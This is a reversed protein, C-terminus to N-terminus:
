WIEKLWSYLSYVIILIIFKVFITCYRPFENLLLTSYDSTISDYIKAEKNEENTNTTQFIDELTKWFEQNDFYSLTKMLDTGITKFDDISMHLDIDEPEGEERERGFFSTEQTFSYMIGLEKFCVIRGTKEKSKELKFSCQKFKFIKNISQFISPFIRLMFNDSKSENQYEWGYMFANKKRSHGHLDWFLKIEREEQFVKMMRKTYYITPDLHKSPDIWRRNLDFGLLSWRYNGYIVGDPNLMPIIKFIYNKRLEVAIPDSSLLFEILGQIVWSSQAEGPHVRSTIVVGKNTNIIEICYNKYNKTNQNSKQDRKLLHFLRICEM